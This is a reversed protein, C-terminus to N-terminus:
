LINVCDLNTASHTICQHWVVNTLQAPSCSSLANSILWSCFGILEGRALNAADATSFTMGGGIREASLGLFHPLHIIANNYKIQRSYSVMDKM